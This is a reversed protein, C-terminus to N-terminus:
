RNEESAYGCTILAEEIAEAQSLGNRKCFKRLEDAFKPRLKVTFPKKRVDDTMSKRGAVGLGKKIYRIFVM